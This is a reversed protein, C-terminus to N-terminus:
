RRVAGQPGSCTSVMAACALAVPVTADDRKPAVNSLILPSTFGQCLMARRMVARRRQVLCFSQLLFCFKGVGSM